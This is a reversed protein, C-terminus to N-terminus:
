YDPGVHQDGLLADPTVVEPMLLGSRDCFRRVMRLIHPNAIHTCNWTLLIDIRRHACIAIHYADLLAKSPLANVRVLEGATGVIAEDTLLVPIGRVLAQRDAAATPDGKSIEDLVVQSIFLEYEARREDWWRHTIQRHSEVTIDSSPRNTLCGIITTELYLSPKHVLIV